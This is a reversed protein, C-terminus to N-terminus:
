GNKVEGEPPGPQVYKAQNMNSLTKTTLFYAVVAGEAAIAEVYPFEPLFAKIIGQIFYIALCGVALKFRTKDDIM